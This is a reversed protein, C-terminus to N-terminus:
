RIACRPSYDKPNTLVLVGKLIVDDTDKADESTNCKFLFLGRDVWKGKGQTQGRRKEGRCWHVLKCPSQDVFEALQFPITPLEEM